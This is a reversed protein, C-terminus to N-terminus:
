NGLSPLSQNPAGVEETEAPAPTDSGPEPLSDADEEIEMPIPPMMSPEADAEYIELPEGLNM